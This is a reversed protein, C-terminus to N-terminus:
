LLALLYQHGYAKPTFVNKTSNMCPLSKTIFPIAALVEKLPKENVSYLVLNFLLMFLAKILAESLSKSLFLAIIFCYIIFQLVNRLHFVGSM